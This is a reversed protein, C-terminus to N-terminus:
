RITSIFGEFEDRSVKDSTYVHCSVSPGRDWELVFHFSWKDGVLNGRKGGLLEEPGAPLESGEYTTLTITYGSPLEYKQEVVTRGAAALQRILYRRGDPRSANAEPIPFGAAAEASSHSDFWEIGGFGSLVTPADAQSSQNPKAINPQAQDDTGACASFSSAIAVCVTAASIRVAITFNM